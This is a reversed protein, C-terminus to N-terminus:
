CVRPTSFTRPLVVIYDPTVPVVPGQVDLHKSLKEIVKAMHWRRRQFFSKLSSNYVECPNNTTAYGTPTHFAQWCWFRGDLWQQQFYNAFGQLPEQASWAVLAATRIRQYEAMSEAFHMDMIYRLILKRQKANLHRIKKRVNYLVHFFCMLITGRSFEPISIFANAQAEEADGMIYDVRISRGRVEKFLRALASFCQAYDCAQRRSVIFLAAVQYSRKNDTFGCSIVPYGLDSLKFTADTHFM